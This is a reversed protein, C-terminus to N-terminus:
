IVVVAIIITAMAYLPIFAQQLKGLSGSSPSPEGSDTTNGSPTEDQGEEPGSGSEETPSQESGTDSTNGAASPDTAPPDTSVTLPEGEKILVTYYAGAALEPNFTTEAAGGTQQSGAAGGFEYSATTEQYMYYPTEFKDGASCQLNPDVAALFASYDTDPAMEYCTWTTEDAVAAVCKQTFSQSVIGAPAEVDQNVSNCGYVIAHLTPEGAFPECELPAPTSANYAASYLEDCISVVGHPLFLLPGITAFLRASLSLRM